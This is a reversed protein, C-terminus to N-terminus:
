CPDDLGPLADASVNFVGPVHEIFQPQFCSASFALALEKSMLTSVSSKLKAAVALAMMNYSKLTITAKTNVWCKAWCRVAILVCLSEWTQQGKNDGRHHRHIAVYGDSISTAFWSVVKTNKTLVGGFGYPSADLIMILEDGLNFFLDVRWSRIILHGSMTIIMMIVGMLMLIMVIARFLIKFFNAIVMFPTFVHTKGRRRLVKVAERERVVIFHGSMTIMMMIVGMLMLIMVIARALIKDFNAIVM